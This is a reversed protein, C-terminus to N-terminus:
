KLSKIANLYQYGYKNDPELYAGESWENWANIIIFEAGNNKSVDYLENIYINFSTPCAGKYVTANLGYRATNDWDVFAGVFRNKASKEQKIIESWTYDYCLINTKKLKSKFYSLLNLIPEPLIRLKQLLSHSFINKKTYSESNCIQRPQFNYTDISKDLLKSQPHSITFVFHVGAFGNIIALEDWYKKMSDFNKIINPQYIFFLPKNDIKIYRCDNWYKLLYEFHEKWLVKSPEHTQKIIITLDEGVWRKSWTENAWSLCYELDISKNDFFNMVPKELLLEGDFWYHYFCFADLGHQKAMDAQREIVDPHSQDYYFDNIPERPQNHDDYLKYGKKVNDWDTFGKGWHKDNLEIQYFQPFYHAIIKM